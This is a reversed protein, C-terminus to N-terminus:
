TTEERMSKLTMQACVPAFLGDSAIFEKVFKSRVRRQSRKRECHARSNERNHKTETGSVFSCAIVM